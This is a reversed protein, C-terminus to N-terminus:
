YVLVVRVRVETFLYMDYLIYYHWWRYYCWGCASCGGFM